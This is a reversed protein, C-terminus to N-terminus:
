KGQLTFASEHIILSSINKFEVLLDKGTEFFASLFNKQVIVKSCDEFRWSTPINGQLRNLDDDDGEGRLDM